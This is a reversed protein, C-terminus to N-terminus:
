SFIIHILSWERVILVEVLGFLFVFPKVLIVLSFIVIIICLVGGVLIPLIVVLITEIRISVDVLVLIWPPLLSSNGIVIMFSCISVLIIIHSPITLLSLGEVGYLKWILLHYWITVKGTTRSIGKMWTKLISLHLRLCTMDILELGLLIVLRVKYLIM